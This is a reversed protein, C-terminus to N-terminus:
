LVALMAVVTWRSKDVIVPVPTQPKLGSTLLHGALAMSRDYLACYTFDGDWACIAQADPNTSAQRAILEHVPQDCLSPQSLLNWNLIQAHDHESFLDAEKILREPSDIIIQLARGFAHAVINAQSPNLIRQDVDVSVERAHLNIDISLDYESSLKSKVYRFKKSPSIENIMDTSGFSMCTNFIRRGKIGLEHQLNGIAALQYSSAEQHRANTSQLTEAISRSGPVLLRCVLTTSFSGVAEKLGSVPIDRSSSRYGFCIDETGVYDRLVLAWAVQLVAPVDISHKVAFAALDERPIPLNVITNEWLRSDADRASSTLTPFFCPQSEHLQKKWFDTKQSTTKSRNLYEQYSFQSPKPLYQGM